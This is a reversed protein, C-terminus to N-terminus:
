EFQPMGCVNKASVLPVFNGPLERLFFEHSSIPRAIGFVLSRPSACMHSPLMHTRHAQLAKSGHSKNASSGHEWLMASEDLEASGHWVRSLRSADFFLM